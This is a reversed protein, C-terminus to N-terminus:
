RACISGEGSQTLPARELTELLTEIAVIARRSQRRGRKTLGCGPSLDMAPIHCLFADGHFDFMSRALDVIAAPHFHHSLAGSSRQRELKEIRAERAAEDADVFVIASYGAFEAALEPTLQHLLRIDAQPDIHGIREVVDAAVGDDRRLPNGCAILLVRM